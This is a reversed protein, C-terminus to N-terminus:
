LLGGSDKVQTFIAAPHLQKSQWLFPKTGEVCLNCDCCSGRCSRFINVSIYRVGQFKALLNCDMTDMM